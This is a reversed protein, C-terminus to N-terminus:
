RDFILDSTTAAVKCAIPAFPSVNPSPDSLLFMISDTCSIGPLRSSYTDTNGFFSNSADHIAVPFQRPTGDRGDPWAAVLGYDALPAPQAELNFSNSAFVVDNVASVNVIAQPRDSTFTNDAVIINQNVPAAASGTGAVENQFNPFNAAEAMIDLSFFGSLYNHGTADFQNKSLV